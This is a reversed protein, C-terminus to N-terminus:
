LLNNGDDAMSPMNEPSVAVIKDDQRKLKVICSEARGLSVERQSCDAKNFNQLNISELATGESIPTSKAAPIERQDGSNLQTNISGGVKLRKKDPEKLELQISDATTADHIQASDNKINVANRDRYPVSASEKNQQASKHKLESERLAIQQRLVQLKTNNLGVGKDCGHEQDLSKKVYNFNRGRSGQEVSSYGAVRSNAGQITTTASMFPRSLSFKKPLVKNINRATQRSKTSKALSPVSLRRNGEVMMNGKTEVAKDQRYEESDSSGSDDDSFRIVLNNDNTGLPPRWATTTSKLPVRNKDSSKQFKPQASARCHIDISGTSNNGSFITKWSLGVSSVKLFM